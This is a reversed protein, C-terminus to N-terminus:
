GSSARCIKGTHRTEGRNEYAEFPSGMTRMIGAFGEVSTRATAVREKIINLAPDLGVAKCQDCM